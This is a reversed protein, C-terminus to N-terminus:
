ADFVEFGLRKIWNDCAEKTPMSVLEIERDKDETLYGCFRHDPDNGSLKYSYATNSIQSWNWMKELEEKSFWQNFFWDNMFKEKEMVCLYFCNEVNGFLFGM